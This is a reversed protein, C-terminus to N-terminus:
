AVIIAPVPLIIIFEMLFIYFYGVLLETCVEESHGSYGIDIHCTDECKSNWQNQSFSDGFFVDSSCMRLTDFIITFIVKAM